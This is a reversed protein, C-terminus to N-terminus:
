ENTFRFGSGGFDKMIINGIKSGMLVFMLAVFTVKFLLIMNITVTPTSYAGTTTRCTSISM